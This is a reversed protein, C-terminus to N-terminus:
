RLNERVFKAIIEMEARQKALEDQLRQIQKDKDDQLKRLSHVDYGAQHTLWLIVADNGVIQRFNELDDAPFSMDGNEIRSWTAKDKGLPGYVQKPELDALSMSYRIVRRLNPLGLLYAVDPPSSPKRAPILSLQEVDSSETSKRQNVPM